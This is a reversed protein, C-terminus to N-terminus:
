KTGESKLLKFQKQSDNIIDPISGESIALDKTLIELVIKQALAIDLPYDDDFTM